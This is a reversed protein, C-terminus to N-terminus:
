GYDRAGRNDICGTRSNRTEEQRHRAGRLRANGLVAEPACLALDKLIGEGVILNGEIQANRQAIARRLRVTQMCLEGPALDFRLDLLCFIVREQVDAICGDGEFLAAGLHFRGALRTFQLLLSKIGLPLFVLEARGGHVVHNQSLAVQDGSLARLEARERVKRFGLGVVLASEPAGELDVAYRNGTGLLALHIAIRENGTREVTLDDAGGFKELGEVFLVFGGASLPCRM